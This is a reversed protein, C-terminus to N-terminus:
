EKNVQFEFQISHGLNYGAGRCFVKTPNLISCPPRQSRWVPGPVPTAPSPLPVKLDKEDWFGRSSSCAPPPEGPCRSAGRRLGGSCGLRAIWLRSEKCSGRTSGGGWPSHTCICLEASEDLYDLHVLALLYPPWSWEWWRPCRARQQCTSTHCSDRKPVTGSLIVLCIWNIKCEEEDARPCNSNHSKQSSLNVTTLRPQQFFETKESYGRLVKSFLLCFM